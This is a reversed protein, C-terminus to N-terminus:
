EYALTLINTWPPPWDTTQTRQLGATSGRSGTCYLTSTYYQVTCYSTDTGTGTGTDTSTNEVVNRSNRM